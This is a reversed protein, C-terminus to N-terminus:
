KLYKDFWETIEDLRKARNKPKGSRSLEHNEGHFLCLKTEVGHIQLASYMQLAETMWCRYDEESHIFLTPTKVKDAYKLPSQAWMKEPNDWVDGATQDPAFFFGIDTTLAMSVWNSISRQSVAAKFRNTHGIIWNTMFGGYSGGTVGIRSKDIWHNRNLIEDTFRMLDDYDTEGYRGRIDSFKQGRGSGGTPNCFFVGYGRSAWYQMEHFVISGYATKPGGHINLIAPYKKKANFNGPKIVWGAIEEGESNVFCLKEPVLLKYDSELKTNFETFCYEKDDNFRYLEVGRLGRMASFIVDNEPIIIENVSGDEKTLCTIKGSVIDLTMLHSSYGVTSIWYLINNRVVWVPEASMKLDSNVSDHLDYEGGEYLPKISDESINYLYFGCNENLGGTKMDTGAIVVTKDDAPCIASVMFREPVRLRKKRKKSIDVKYVSNFLRAVKDYSSAIYFLTNRDPSIYLSYVNTDANSIRSIKGRDYCYLCNRKKQSFGKGNNWFPLEEIIECSNRESIATILDEECTSCKKLEEYLPSYVASFFFLDDSIFVLDSINYNLRLWEEAEGAKSISIKFLVTLPLGAKQTQKDKENRAAPFVLHDDDSWWYASVGGDQTLQYLTDKDKTIWINSKYTNQKMDAQKVIFSVVKGNTKLNQIFRYKKFHDSKMHKM